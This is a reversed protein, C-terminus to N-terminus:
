GVTRKYRAHFVGAVGTLILVTGGITWLSIPEDLILWGLFVAIVPNVYAYTMVIRIPLQRLVAVFATFAIISGFVVLYGWAFWAESIPAPRPEHLLLAVTTFGIGGFLQQYGSSIFPGSEVPRRTQFISGISWSITALLLAVVGAVDTSSGNLLIPLTLLCLGCFGALLSIVLLLTPPRRDIIAEIIVVWIPLTGVLLATYGSDAHQEAWSVLGNGGLWLLIGSIALTTLDRRSVRLSKGSLIAIIFILPVAVFVRMAAMTFPPFGSGERVVVRIALYTSGWVIYIVVLNLLGAFSYAPEGTSRKPEQLGTQSLPASPNQSMSQSVGFFKPFGTM